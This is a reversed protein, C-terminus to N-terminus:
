GELLWKENTYGPGQAVGGAQVCFHDILEATQHMLLKIIIDYFHM